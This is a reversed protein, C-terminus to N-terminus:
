EDAADSTYLLCTYGVGSFGFYLSNEQYPLFYLFVGPLIMGALLAFISYRKSVAFMYTGFFLFSFMNGILHEISGHMFCSFFASTIKKTISVGTNPKTVFWDSTENTPFHFKIQLIYVLLLIGCIASSYFFAQIYKNQIIM